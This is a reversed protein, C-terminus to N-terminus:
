KYDSSRQSYSRPWLGNLKDHQVYVTDCFFSGAKSTCM